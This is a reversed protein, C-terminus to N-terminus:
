IEEKKKLITAILSSAIDHKAALDVIRVGREYASILGKKQEITLLKRNGKHKDSVKRKQPSGNDLFHKENLLNKKKKKYFFYSM